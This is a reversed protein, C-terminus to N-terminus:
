KTGLRVVVMGAMMLGAGCWAMASMPEGVFFHNSILRMVCNASSFVTWAVMLSAADRYAYFLGFQAVLILWWTHQLQQLFNLDHGARRNLFEIMNIAVNALLSAALWWYM